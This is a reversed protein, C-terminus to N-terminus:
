VCDRDSSVVQGRKATGDAVRKVKPGSGLRRSKRRRGRKSQRGEFWPSGIMLFLGDACDDSFGEAVSVGDGVGVDDAVGVGDAVGDGVGVGVGDAVADGIGVGVGDAVAFCVAVSGATGSRTEPM